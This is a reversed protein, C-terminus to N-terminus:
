HIDDGAGGILTSSSAYSHLNDDGAGGELWAHWQSTIVDDGGLGELTPTVTGNSERETGM